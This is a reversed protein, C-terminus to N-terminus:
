RITQSMLAEADVVATDGATVAVEETWLLVTGNPLRQAIQALYCGEGLVLDTQAYPDMELWDLSILWGPAEVLVGTLVESSDSVAPLIRLVGTPVLLSTIEEEGGIAMSLGALDEPISDSALPLSRWDRGSWYQLWGAERGHEGQFWGMVPRVPIGLSKLSSGLLVRLETPTGGGSAAVDLPAAIGGMFDPKRVTMSSLESAVFLAISDADRATSDLRAEWYVALPTRYATVPEESIRYGLLCPLFVEDPISDYLANRYELAGMLHDMLIGDTMELRDLRPITTFLYELCELDDGELTSLMESWLAQNGQTDALLVDREEPTLSLIALILATMM